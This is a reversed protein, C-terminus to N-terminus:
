KASRNGTLTLRNYYSRLSTHRTSYQSNMIEDASEPETTTSICDLIRSRPKISSKRLRYYTFTNPCDDVIAPWWPFSAIRAWVISGANYRNEILDEEINLPKPKEPIDCSALEKDLNMHCFWNEPVDLPDHYDEVFRWKRCNKNCCEIWMGVDRRPQLWRLKNQWDLDDSCQSLKMVNPDFGKYNSEKPATKYTCKRDTDTREVASIATKGGGFNSRAATLEKRAIDRDNEKNSSRLRMKQFNAVLSVKSDRNSEKEEKECTQADTLVFIGPSSFVGSDFDVNPIRLEEKTYILQKPKLDIDGTRTKPTKPKKPATPVSVHRKEMPPTSCPLAFENGLDVRTLDLTSREQSSGVKWNHCEPGDFDSKDFLVTRVQKGTKSFALPHNRRRNNYKKQTQAM